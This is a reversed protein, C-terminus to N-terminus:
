KKRLVFRTVFVLDRDSGEGLIGLVFEDPNHPDKREALAVHHPNARFFPDDGRLEAAAAFVWVSPAKRNYVWVGAVSKNEKQAAWVAAGNSEFVNFLEKRLRRADKRTGGDRQIAQCMPKHRKWDAVQCSRSCYYLSRCGSCKKTEGSFVECGDAQCM